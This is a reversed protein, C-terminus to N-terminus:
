QLKKDGPQRLLDVTSGPHPTTCTYKSSSLHSVM